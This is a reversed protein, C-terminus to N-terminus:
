IMNKHLGGLVENLNKTTRTRASKGSLHAVDSRIERCTRQTKRKFISAGLESKM